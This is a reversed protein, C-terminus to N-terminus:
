RTNTDDTTVLQLITRVNRRTQEITTAKLGRTVIAQWERAAATIGDLTQRGAATLELLPSRRHQPNTVYTVLGDADLEDALRQVAQRSVGLRRAAQPVSRAEDSVVSLLQWRAQTQGVRGALHEGHRRLAGALEYVDAVLMSFADVEMDGMSLM